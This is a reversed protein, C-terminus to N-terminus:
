WSHFLYRLRIKLRGFDKTGQRIVIEHSTGASPYSASRLPNTASFRLKYGPSKGSCKDRCDRFAPAPELHLRYLCFRIALAINNFAATADDFTTRRYKGLDSLL